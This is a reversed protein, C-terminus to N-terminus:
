SYPAEMLCSRTDFKGVRLPVVMKMMELIPQGVKANHTFLNDERPKSLWYNSMLSHTQIILLWRMWFLWRFLNKMNRANKNKAFGRMMWTLWARRWLIMIQTMPFKQKKGLYLIVTSVGHDLNFPILHHKELHDGFFDECITIFTSHVGLYIFLTQFPISQLSSIWGIVIPHISELNLDQLTSKSKEDKKRECKELM